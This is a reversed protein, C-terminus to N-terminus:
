KAEINRRSVIIETYKEIIYTYTSSVEITKQIPEIGQPTYTISCLISNKQGKYLNLQEQKECEEIGMDTNIEIIIKNRDGQNCSAYCVMGDDNNKITIKIPFTIGKEFVKLPSKSEIEILVPGGTTVTTSPLIGVKELRKLEDIPGFTISKMTTSTYTYGVRVFPKYEMVLGKPLEPAYFKWTCTLSAGPQLIKKVLKSCTDSIFIWRTKGKGFGEIQLNTIIAPSQGKNVLKLHFDVSEGSYAEKYDTGFYEIEIGRKNSQTICGSIVVLFIILYIYRMM